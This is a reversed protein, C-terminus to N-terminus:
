TARRRWPFFVLQTSRAARMLKPDDLLIVDITAGHEDAIRKLAPIIEGVRTRFTTDIRLAVTPLPEVPGRSANAFVAWEVEPYDRLVASLADLLEDSPEQTLAHFEVSGGAGFSASVNAGGGIM